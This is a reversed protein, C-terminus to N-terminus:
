GHPEKREEGAPAGNLPPKIRLPIGSVLFYVEDAGQALVENARGACDRFRRALANDPVVGSGVENTVIILARGPAGRGAAVLRGAAAEAEAEDFAEDAILLNSMWLTVCDLLVTRASVLAGGVAEPVRLPEEILAWAAPRTRRHARIRLTMEEDLAQATAVYVHPGQAQLALAQAFRSKGSRSGGTVLILM